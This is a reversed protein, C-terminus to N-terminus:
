FIWHMTAEMLVFQSETKPIRERLIEDERERMVLHDM